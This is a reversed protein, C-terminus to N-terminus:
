LVRRDNHVAARARLAKVAQRRKRYQRAAVVDAVIAGVFTISWCWWALGTGALTVVYAVAVAVACAGSWWLLWQRYTTARHRWLGVLLGIFWPVSFVMVDAILLPAAGVEQM